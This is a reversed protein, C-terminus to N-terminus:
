APAFVEQLATLYERLIVLGPEDIKVFNIGCQFLNDVPKAYVVQGQLDVLNEEIGITLVIIQESALPITTELLIGSESVNLTRGMAQDIQRGDKDLVVFDLLNLTDKRKYKRREEDTM